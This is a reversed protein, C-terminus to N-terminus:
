SMAGFFWAILVFSAVFLLYALLDAVFRGRATLRM